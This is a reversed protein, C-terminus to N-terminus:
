PHYAKSLCLKTGVLRFLGQWFASTFIRDRDSTITTPIGHLKHINDFFLKAVTKATYPHTLPLFYAYKTLRDIVVLITDKGLSLPLGEIFDM